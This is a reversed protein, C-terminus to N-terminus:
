DNQPSGTILAEMKPTGIGTALDFGPTTPYLGDNTELKHFGTIDHFYGGPNTRYLQYLLPNANGVRGHQYSVRDAFIASWLPSSLSTGGIGFWGPPTQGGSFTGCTSYPTAANGTCYEAYPTYEDANASVDPAERCPKGIRALACNTSGNGYLTYPNNIGSGFQYFPRGWWQSIGGAGAGVNSCWDYGSLGGENSSENCLNDVNWVTEDGRPYQPYPQGGPNFSTLSTGGVVTVWPEAPDGLDVINAGDTDLCGFAGTDGSAAFMSQGQLAMQEFILNEAEAYGASIDNECPGWSSSIVDAKDDQAIRYYEDLTTQGSFDNPANYVLIEKAAPAITLQMEIDADVEIDGSYGNDVAPCTDGSPCVPHLPGGDVIIDTLPPTFEPGYVTHAWTKIDSHLYASLEFVALRVGRGQGEPGLRPAAYISNTQSPSLGNCGPGGGYGAPFNVGNNFYNFFEEATPYPAECSPNPPKHRNDPMRYRAHLRVTNTLGVVGLVGSALSSPLQVAGDNAFYAVGYKNVHNRISTKLASSVESSSGTVRLFFPSVGAQVTLGKSQLYETLEAVQASDPAFRANFQGPALWQQYSSSQPDYVSSLLSSLEGANNPALVLEFTMSASAYEGTDADTTSRASGPLASLPTSGAHASHAAFGAALLLLGSMAITLMGRARALLQGYPLPKIM